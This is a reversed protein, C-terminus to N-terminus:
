NSLLAVSHNLHSYVCIKSFSKISQDHSPSQSWQKVMDQATEGSVLIESSTFGPPYNRQAFDSFGEHNNNKWYNQWREGINNCLMDSLQFEPLGQSKRYKQLEELVEKGTPPEKVTAVPPTYPQSFRMGGYFSFLNSFVFIGFMLLGVMFKDM